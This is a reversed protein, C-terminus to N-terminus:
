WRVSGGVGFLSLGGIEVNEVICVGPGIYVNDGIKAACGDNSGITTFQSLNVNNGIIATKNVVIPGGHAIYLGYGVKTGIPIQISRRSSNLKWLILGLIRILHHKVGGREICDSRLRFAVQWRFSNNHFYQHLFAKVGTRGAYRYLDSEIYKNM